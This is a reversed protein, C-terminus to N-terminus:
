PAPAEPILHEILDATAEPPGVDLSYCPVKSLLDVLTLHDFHQLM